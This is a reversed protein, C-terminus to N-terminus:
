ETSGAGSGLRSVKLRLGDIGVVRVSEGRRLPESADAEWVENGVRVRWHNGNAGVVLARSDILAESGTVVPRRMVRIVLVYMLLSLVFIVTYFPGAMSLPWVLFVALGFVPLLLILHCM